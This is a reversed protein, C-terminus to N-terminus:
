SKQRAQMLQEFARADFGTYKRNDILLIPIGGGNSQRYLREGEASREIDYECYHVNNDHFYKRAQACYPCWWAGLMIVDPETKLIDASCEITSVTARYSAFIMVLLLAGFILFGSIKRSPGPSSQELHKETM